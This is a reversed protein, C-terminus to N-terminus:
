VGVLLMCFHFCCRAGWESSLCKKHDRRACLKLFCIPARVCEHSRARARARHCLSAPRPPARVQRARVCHAAHLGLERQAVLPACVRPGARPLAAAGGVHRPPGAPCRNPVPTLGREEPRLRCAARSREEKLPHEEKLPLRARQAPCPRGRGEAISFPVRTSIESHSESINPRTGPM